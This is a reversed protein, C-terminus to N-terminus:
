SDRATFIRGVRQYSRATLYSHEQIVNDQSWVPQEQSFQLHLKPLNSYQRTDLWVFSANKCQPINNLIAKMEDWWEKKKVFVLGPSM